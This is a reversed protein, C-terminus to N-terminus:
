PGGAFREARELYAEVREASRPALDGSRVLQDSTARVLNFSPEWALRPQTQVNLQDFAVESAAAIENASLHESPLLRFTDFGRGIESGYIHGNYWYSSWFGGTVLSTGSNPGRDFFAIEVPNSSDTFDWVSTGGQYWAQVMIDRGPVPVLSGNHAVCNEQNTQTVPLKYYSAFEMKKGQPTDVIDFIANAGWNMPDTPRCRAGTGGGWEDTFVVKTGDNNFTASHWYAFNYDEVADIRRPNAPDSIDLLIGHGQCAGAALGIESYATIDHCQFTQSRSQGGPARPDDPPYTPQAGSGPLGNLAGDAYEDQCSNDGCTSFVRANRNVLVHDSPNALPVKAISISFNDTDPDQLSSTGACGGPEEAANRIGATGSVYVYIHADDAPDEVLTFTHSGKCTQIGRLQVPNDVDSIDFIRVGRFRSEQAGGPNGETGCDVRGRTEEVSMFLLSGHVAVDGQGGPCVVSTRLTPNAPDSIDYINFGHFNGVAAFTDWFALDSNAFSLSGPSAPNFFEAPKGLHALNEMNSSAEGYGELLGPALGNRPDAGQALAAGPLLSVLMLVATVLVLARSGGHPVRAGRSSSKGM